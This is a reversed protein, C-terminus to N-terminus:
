HKGLKNELEKIRDYSNEVSRTLREVTSSSSEKVFLLQEMLKNKDIKAQKSNKLEISLDAKLSKLKEMAEENALTLREVTSTTSSKIFNVQTLLQSNQDTLDLIKNGMELTKEIKSDIDQKQAEIETQNKIEKQELTLIKSKEQHLNVELSKITEEKDNLISNHEGITHTLHAL